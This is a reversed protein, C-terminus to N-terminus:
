YINIEVTHMHQAELQQAAYEEELAENIGTDM